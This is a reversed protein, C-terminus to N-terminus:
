YWTPSSGLLLTLAISGASGDAELKGSLSESIDEEDLGDFPFELVYLSDNANKDLISDLSNEDWTAIASDTDDSNNNMLTQKTAGGTATTGDQEALPGTLTSVNDTDAHPITTEAPGAPLPSSSPLAHLFRLCFAVYFVDFEHLAILHCLSINM